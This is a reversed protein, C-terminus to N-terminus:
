QGIPGAVLCFMGLLQDTRIRLISWPIRNSVVYRTAGPSIWVVESGLIVGVSVGSGDAVAMPTVVAGAGM